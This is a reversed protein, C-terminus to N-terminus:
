ELCLHTRAVKHWWKQASVHLCASSRVMQGSERGRGVTGVRGMEDHLCEVFYKEPTAIRKLKAAKLLM